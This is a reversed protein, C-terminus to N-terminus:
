RVDYGFEKLTEGFAENCKRKLHPALDAKWRGISTQPNSSTRHHQMEPTDELAKELVASVTGETADVGIYRFVGSLTKVPELILDEYRVLHAKNKYRKWRDLLRKGDFKLVDIYEEDSKTLERGFSVFGRKENFASISAFMDRFDRVLVIEKARPYLEWILDPIFQHPLFKEAFFSCGSHGQMISFREYFAEIRNQCFATVVDINTEGLWLELEQDSDIYIQPNVRDGTWWLNGYMTTAEVAQLYSRPEAVTRLMQLWYSAVRPEKQFPKYAVVSPHNGLLRMMWSSGTRGLTNVVLPHIGPEYTPVLKSRRGHVVGIEGWSRDKFIARIQIDFNEPLGLLSLKAHFGSKLAGPVEPFKQLVDERDVNLAVEHFPTDLCRFDIYDVSSQKGLVWGVVSLSHFRTVDGGIPFDIHYGHSHPKLEPRTIKIIEVSM